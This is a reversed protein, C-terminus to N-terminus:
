FVDSFNDKYFKSLCVVEICSKEQDAKFSYLLFPICENDRKIVRM